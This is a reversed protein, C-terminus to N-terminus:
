PAFHVPIEDKLSAPRLPFTKSEIAQKTADIAAVCLGPDGGRSNISTPLKGLPQIIILDCTKGHYSDADFFRYQIATATQCLWTQNERNVSQQPTQAECQYRIESATPFNFAQRALQKKHSQCSVLFMVALLCLTKNMIAEMRTISTNIDSLNCMKFRARQNVIMMPHMLSHAWPM